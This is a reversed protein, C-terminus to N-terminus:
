IIRHLVRAIVFTRFLCNDHHRLLVFSEAPHYLNKQIHTFKLNHYTIFFDHNICKYFLNQRIQFWKCHLFIYPKNSFTLIYSHHSAIDKNVSQYIIKNLISYFVITRAPLNNHRRLPFFFM